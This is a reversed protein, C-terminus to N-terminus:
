HEMLNTSVGVGFTVGFPTRFKTVNNLHTVSAIRMMQAIRPAYSDPSWSVQSTKYSEPVNIRSAEGRDGDALVLRAIPGINARTNQIVQSCTM